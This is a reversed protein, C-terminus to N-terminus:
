QCLVDEGGLLDTLFGLSTGCLRVYRLLAKRPEHRLLAFAALACCAGRRRQNHELVARLLQVRPFAADAAIDRCGFRFIFLDRRRQM